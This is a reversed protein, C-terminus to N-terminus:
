RLAPAVEAMFYQMGDVEPADMFWLMLHEVGLQRLDRIRAKAQDPTGVIWPGTVYDPLQDTRGAVFDAIQPKPEGAGAERSREILAAVKRRLAAVDPAVLVQTEFSIELAERKRGAAQLAIDLQALRRALEDLPVPTSNWGDGLRAALNIVAPFAEGLWLPMAKQVPKPMLVAQDLHYFEGEFDIPATATFLQRILGIAEELRRVRAKHDDDWDLGYAVQEPRGMGAEFFHIFRGGSLVDLTAMMKAAIAPQRFLNAQHILGLTIRETAGAIMALTTWGELVAQDRGLMLHDCVWVSDFGLREAEKATKLVDKGNLTAVNPTRFLNPGPMAFAPVCYGFRLPRM